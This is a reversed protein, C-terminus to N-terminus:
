QKANKFRESLENMIAFKKVVMNKWYQQKDSLIMGKPMKEETDLFEKILTEDKVSAWALRLAADLTAKASEAVNM